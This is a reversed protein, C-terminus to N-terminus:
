SLTTLLPRLRKGIMSALFLKLADPIVFPVVCTMIATGVSALTFGSYFAAYWLTGLIYCGLTAGIAGLMRHKPAIYLTLPLLLFGLLFGGTPGLLIGIGGQFGSFVPIGVAGLLLYLAVAAFCQKPTLLWAACYLMFTQMTFPIAMPVTIWAGVILLTTFLATLCLSRLRVNM